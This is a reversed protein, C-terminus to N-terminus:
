QVSVNEASIMQCRKFDSFHAQRLIPYGGLASPSFCWKGRSWRWFKKQPFEQYSLTAEVKHRIWLKLSIGRTCVYSKTIYTCKMWSIWALSVGM